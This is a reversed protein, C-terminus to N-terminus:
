QLYVRSDFSFAIVRSRHQKDRRHIDFLVRPRAGREIPRVPQHRPRMGSPHQKSPRGGCIRDTGSWHRELRGSLAEDWTRARHRQVTRHPRSVVGPGAGRQTPRSTPYLLVRERPRRREIAIRWGNKGSASLYVFSSHPHNNTHVRNQVFLCGVLPPATLDFRRGLLSSFSSIFYPIRKLNSLGYKFKYIPFLILCVERNIFTPTPKSNSENELEWRQKRSSEFRCTTLFWSIGARAHHFDFM